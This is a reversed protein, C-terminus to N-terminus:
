HLESVRQGYHWTRTLSHITLNLCVTSSSKTRSASPALWAPLALMSVRRSVGLGGGTVPLSAQIWESDSLDCHDRYSLATHMLEDFSELAAHSDSPSCTSCVDVRPDSFSATLLIYWWPTRHLLSSWDRWREPSTMVGSLGLRTWPEVRLWYIV